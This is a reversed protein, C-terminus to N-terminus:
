TGRPQRPATARRQFPIFYSLCGTFATKKSYYFSM